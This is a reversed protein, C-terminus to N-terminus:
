AIVKYWERYCRPIAIYWFNKNNITKSLYPCIACDTYCTNGTKRICRVEQCHYTSYPCTKGLQRRFNLLRKLNHYIPGRPGIKDM